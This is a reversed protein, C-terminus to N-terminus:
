ENFGNFSDISIVFFARPLCVQVNKALYPKYLLIQSVGREGEVTWSTQTHQIIARIITKSKCLAHLKQSPHFCDSSLYSLDPLFSKHIGFFTVQNKPLKLNSLGPLIVM